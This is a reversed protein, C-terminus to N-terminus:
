KPRAIQTTLLDFKIALKPDKQAFIRLYQDQKHHGLKYLNIMSKVQDLNLTAIYPLIQQKEEVSFPLFSNILQRAKDRYEDLLALQDRVGLNTEVFDQLVEETFYVSQLDAPKERRLIVAFAKQLGLDGSAATTRLMQQYTPILLHFARSHEMLQQLESQKALTTM